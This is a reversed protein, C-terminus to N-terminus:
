PELKGVKSEEVRGRGSERRWMRNAKSSQHNPRHEVEGRLRSKHSSM